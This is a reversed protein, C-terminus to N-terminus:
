GANWNWRYFINFILISLRAFLLMCDGKVLWAITASIVSSKEDGVGIGKLVSHTAIVYTISSGLAQCSDWIQYDLYDESVTRPYGQPM